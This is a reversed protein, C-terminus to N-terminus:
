ATVREKAAAKILDAGKEGIMIATANTNGGPVSPMIAADIVRLGEVGIVRLEPDVVAQPGVGMTCSGVAHQGIEAVERIWAELENDSQVLEGPLLETGTLEAQPSTRYIRRAERIGRIMTQVDWPDDM